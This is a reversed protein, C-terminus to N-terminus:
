VDELRIKEPASGVRVMPLGSGEMRENIQILVQPPVPPSTVGANEGWRGRARRELVMKIADMSPLVDEELDVVGGDKTARQFKRRGGKVAGQLGMEAAIVNEEDWVEQGFQYADVCWQRSTYERVFWALEANMAKAIEVSSMRKHGCEFFRRESFGIEKGDPTPVMECRTLVTALDTTLTTPVPTTPVPTTPATTM